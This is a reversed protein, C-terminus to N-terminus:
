LLAPLHHIELHQQAPPVSINGDVEAKAPDLGRSLAAAEATRDDLRRVDPSVGRM